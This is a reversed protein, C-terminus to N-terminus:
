RRIFIMYSPYINMHIKVRSFVAALETRTIQKRKITREEIMSPNM